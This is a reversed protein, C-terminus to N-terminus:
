NLAIKSQQVKDQLQRILQRVIKEEPKIGTWLYFSEVAQYVLMKCGNVTKAGSQEAQKLFATKAPSYILDYAILRHNLLINDPLPNFDINPYSGLPTANILLDTQNIKEQLCSDKLSFVQICCEPFFGQYTKKIREGKVPTRNFISINKVGETCLVYIVARAAGGAGLIVARKGKLEIENGRMLSRKFGILDTNFGLLLKDKIVITNIAGVRFASYEITDMMEITKEKFPITINVGKANLARLGEIAAVLRGESVHLPLYRNNILYYDLLQNHLFPSLTYNINGGIIGVIGTEGNIEKKM